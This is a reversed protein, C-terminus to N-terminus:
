GTDDLEIEWLEETQVPEADKKGKKGKGTTAPAASQVKDSRLVTSTLSSLLPDGTSRPSM